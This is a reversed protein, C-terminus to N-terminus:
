NEKGKMQRAVLEFVKSRLALMTRRHQNTLIVLVHGSSPIIAFCCAVGPGGGTHGYANLSKMSRFREVGFGYGPSNLDPKASTMTELFEGNIIKKNLLQQSFRHMDPVTSYSSGAPCGRIRQMFINNTWKETARDMYYGQALQQGPDNTFFCGTSNMGNPHYITEEMYQHYDKGTASEIIAGLLIFGSNSYAHKTGPEFETEQIDIFDAFSDVTDFHARSTNPYDPHRFFDGVGGTHTLLHKVLVKKGVAENVWKEDLYKGIPDDLSLKGQEVLAMIATATFMKTISGLCFRTDLTNPVDFMMSAQGAARQFLVQDNKALLVTGSFVDNEVLQDVYKELEKLLQEEDIAQNLLATPPDCFLVDYDTIQTPSNEDFEVFYEIWQELPDNDRFGILSVRTRNCTGLAVFRTQKWVSAMQKQQNIWTERKFRSRLKEEINEQVYAMWQDTDHNTVANVFSSFRKANENDPLLQLGSKGDQGFSQGVLLATLIVTLATQNCMLRLFYKNM